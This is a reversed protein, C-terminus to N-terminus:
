NDDFVYKVLATIVLGTVVVGVTTLTITAILFGKENENLDGM